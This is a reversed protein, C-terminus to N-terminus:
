IPNYDHDDNHHICQDPLCIGKNQDTDYDGHDQSDHGDNFCGLQGIMKPVAITTIIMDDVLYDDQYDHDYVDHHHSCALLHRGLQAGLLLVDLMSHDGHYLVM